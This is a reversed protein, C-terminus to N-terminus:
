HDSGGPEDNNSAAAVNITFYTGEWRDDGMDDIFLWGVEITAGSSMYTQNITGSNEGAALNSSSISSFQEGNKRIGLRKGISPDGSPLTAVVAVAQNAPESVSAGETVANGNATFSRGAVPESQKTFTQSAVSSKVGNKIAIAKVTTTANLTIPSSYLSSSATPNSGNTTYHIEAGSEASMTVQTSTEFPTTGSISPANVVPTSSKTFTKNAVSSTAGNKIAIAKVTTTANLTIASSYRPSSANPTSGDVTYHIEAGSEASMSVSTSTEFPTVGSITPAGVSPTPAPAPSFSQDGGNLFKNEGVPYTPLAADANWSLDTGAGLTAKSHIFGDAVKRTVIFACSGAIAALTITIANGAVAVVPTANGETEFVDNINSSSIATDDALSQNVHYRCYEAAGALDIGVITLFDENGFNLAAKLGAMTMSGASLAITIVGAAKDLSVAAPVAAKGDSIIYAGQKVGKEQYANLGFANGSSPNAAVDAKILAYNRRIFESLNPQVGVVNDFSHDIIPKLASQAQMITSMIMRGRMQAITQPNAVTEALSRVVQQKKGKANKGISYVDSGVRGRIYSRTGGSKSKAM